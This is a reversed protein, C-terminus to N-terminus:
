FSNKNKTGKKVPTQDNKKDTKGAKQDTKNEEVKPMAEEKKDEVKNVDELVKNETPVNILEVKPAEINANKSPVYHKSIVRFETRRNLAHAAEREEKSKLSNIFEDKLITGKKFKFGDKNVDSTLVKPETEGAGKAKMRDAAIGKSILYDIVSQARRKSLEINTMPIPRSDTHSSLEIAIKPNLELTKILGNLSDQYQPKLEWKGLDYLIEPLEIPTEPIKALSEDHILDKSREIGVTSEQGKKSFYGDKSFLLNFTSNPLIIEKGFKYKGLIIVETQLIM